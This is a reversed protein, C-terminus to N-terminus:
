ELVKITFVLNFLAMIAFLSLVVLFKKTNEVKQERCKFYYIAQSFVSIFYFVIELIGFTLKFVFIPGLYSKYSTELMIFGVISVAFFIGCIIMSIIQIICLIREPSKIKNNASIGDNSNDSIKEGNILEEITIGFFNALESLTKISPKTVGNEWKSVAKNSVGVIKGLESQSLGKEIRLRTIFNGFKYDRM